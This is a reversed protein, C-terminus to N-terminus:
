WKKGAIYGQEDWTPLLRMEVIARQLHELAAAEAEADQLAM